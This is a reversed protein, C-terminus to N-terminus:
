LQVQPVLWALNVKECWIKFVQKKDKAGNFISIYSIGRAGIDIDGYYTKKTSCIDRSAPTDEGEGRFRFDVLCVIRHGAEILDFLKDYDRSTNYLTEISSM